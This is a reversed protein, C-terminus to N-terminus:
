YILHKVVECIHPCSFVKDRLLLNLWTHRSKFKYLEVSNVLIMILNRCYQFPKFMDSTMVLINVFYLLPKFILYSIQWFYKTRCLLPITWHLLLLYNCSVLIEEFINHHQKLRHQSALIIFTPTLIAHHSKLLNITGPFYKATCSKQNRETKQSKLRAALEFSLLSKRMMM